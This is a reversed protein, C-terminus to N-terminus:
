ASTHLPTSGGNGKANVHVGKALLHRACDTCSATCALQLATYGNGDGQNVGDVLAKVSSLDGLQHFM